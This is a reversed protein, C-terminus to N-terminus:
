AVCKPCADYQDHANYEAGRTDVNLIKICNDALRKYDFYEGCIDCKKAIAM